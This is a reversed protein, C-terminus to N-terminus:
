SSTQAKALASPGLMKLASRLSQQPTQGTTDLTIDAKAYLPERSGLISVLDDMARTNGSMPRLDGQEAVRNMHEDPKARVWVTLCSTLLLEFTSAETVLGGGTALVFRPNKELTTELAAREMRRFTAQGFMEFLETLAMGSEREIERDLEIFPVGLQASLLHGLTSKGGGRLGILAIRGARVESSPGGFRSLLIERAEAVQTPSLRDLLQRMLLNEISRDPRDDILQAVPVNLAQAIRRLLIISCNGTGSELQALYRESVDSHKALAKRSMGRGSRIKRVREGLRLLFAKLDSPAAPLPHTPHNRDAM